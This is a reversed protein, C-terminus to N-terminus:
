ASLSVMPQQRGTQKFLEHGSRDSIIEVTTSGKATLMWTTGSSSTRIEFVTGDPNSGIQLSCEGQFEQLLDPRNAAMWKSSASNPGELQRIQSFGMDSTEATTAQKEQRQQAVEPPPASPAQTDTLELNTLRYAQAPTEERRAQKFAERKSHLFEDLARQRAVLPDGADFSINQQGINQDSAANLAAESNGEDGFWSMMVQQDNKQSASTSSEFLAASEWGVPKAM